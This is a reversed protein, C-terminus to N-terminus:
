QGPAPNEALSSDISDDTEKLTLFNNNLQIQLRLAYTEICTFMARTYARSTTMNFALVCLM